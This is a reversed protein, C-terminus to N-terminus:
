LLHNILTSHPSHFILTQKHFKKLYMIIFKTPLALINKKPPFPLYSYCFISNGDWAFTYCITSCTHTPCIFSNHICFSLNSFIFYECENSPHHTHLFRPTSGSLCSSFNAPTVIISSCHQVLCSRLLFPNKEPPIKEEQWKITKVNANSIKRSWMRREWVCAEYRKGDDVEGSWKLNERNEKRKIFHVNKRRSNLVIVTFNRALCLLVDRKGRRMTKEFVKWVISTLGWKILGKSFLLILPNFLLM